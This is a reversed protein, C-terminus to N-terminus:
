CGVGFVCGCGFVAERVGEGGGGGGGGELVAGGVVGGRGGEFGGGLGVRRGPRVVGGGGQPGVDGAAQGEGAPICTSQAGYPSALSYM